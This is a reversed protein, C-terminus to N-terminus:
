RKLMDDWVRGSRESCCHLSPDDLIVRDAWPIRSRRVYLNRQECLADRVESRVQLLVLPVVMRAPTQHEEDTLTAAKQVVDGLLIDLVIPLEDLPQTQAPSGRTATTAWNALGDRRERKHM